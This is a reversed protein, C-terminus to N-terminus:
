PWVLEVIDTREQVNAIQTFRALSSVMFYLTQGSTPRWNEPIHAYQKIHDGAVSTMNKCTSGEALWEWTAAYWQGNYDMIVWPNAVVAVTGDGSNRPIEVPPWVNAKDYELCIVGGEFRVTLQSTIPWGSVDTHLWTVQNLEVPLEGGTAGGITGGPLSFDGSNTLARDENGVPSVAHVHVSQGAHSMLEEDTFYIVYRHDGESVGCATGVAEEQMEEARARKVFSGTENDGGAYVEVEVSPAWGQHCAWGSVAWRGESQGVSDVYGIVEGSPDPTPGSPPMIMDREDPCDAPCSQPDESPDCREDGCTMVSPPAMDSMDGGTAPGMEQATGADSACDVPCTEPSEMVNCVLDGCYACDLPCSTADESPHCHGDGCIFSPAGGSAPTPEGSSNSSRDPEEACSICVIMLFSSLWHTAQSM